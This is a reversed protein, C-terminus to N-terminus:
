LENDYYYTFICKEPLVMEFLFLSFKHHYFNYYPSEGNHRKKPVVCPLLTPWCKGM